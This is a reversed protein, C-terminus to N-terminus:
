RSYMLENSVLGQPLSRRIYALRILTTCSKRLDHLKKGEQRHKQDYYRLGSLKLLLYYYTQIMFTRHVRGSSGAVEAEGILRDNLRICRRM